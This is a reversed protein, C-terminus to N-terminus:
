STLVNSHFWVGLLYIKMFGLIIASMLSTFCQQSILCCFDFNENVKNCFVEVIACPYSSVCRFLIIRFNGVMNGWRQLLFPKLSNIPHILFRSFIVEGWEMVWFHPKQIEHGWFHSSFFFRLFIPNQSAPYEQFSPFEAAFTQRNQGLQLSLTSTSPPKRSNQPLPSPPTWPVTTLVTM